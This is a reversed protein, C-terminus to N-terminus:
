VNASLIYIFSVETNLLVRFCKTLELLITQVADGSRKRHYIISENM